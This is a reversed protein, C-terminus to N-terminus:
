NKALSELTYLLKVQTTNAINIFHHFANIPFKRYVAFKDAVADVVEAVVELLELDGEDCVNDCEMNDLTSGM